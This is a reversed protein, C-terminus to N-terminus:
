AIIAAVSSTSNCRFYFRPAPYHMDSGRPVTERRCERQDDPNAAKRAGERPHAPIRQRFLCAGLELLPNVDNLPSRDSLCEILRKGAV